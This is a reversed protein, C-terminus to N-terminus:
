KTASVKLFIGLEDNPVCVINIDNCSNRDWNIDLSESNGCIGKGFKARTATPVVTERRGRVSGLMCNELVLSKLLVRKRVALLTVELMRKGFDRALKERQNGV